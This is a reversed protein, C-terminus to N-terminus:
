EICIQLDNHEKLNDNIVLTNIHKFYQNFQAIYDGKIILNQSSNPTNNCNLQKIEILNINKLYNEIFQRSNALFLRNDNIYYVFELDDQSIYKLSLNAIEETQFEFNDTNKVIQTIYTYDPLQKTTEVPNNIALYEKIIQEIKGLRAGEPSIKAELDNNERLNVVLIYNKEQDVVIQAPQDFYDLIDNEFNFNYIGEFYEKNNEIKQYFAPDLQKLLNHIQKLKDKGQTFSFSLVFDVPLKELLLQSKASNLPDFDLSELVLKNEEKKLGLYLDNLNDTKLSALLLKFKIDKIKDLYSSLLDIDFYIKAPYNINLRKLNVVVEVKQALSPKEQFSVKKVQDIVKESNSVILINRELTKNILFEYALNDQKILNLYNELDKSKQKLNFILLYDFKLNGTEINPILAFATNYSVFNNLNEFSIEPLNYEKKFDNFISEVLENKFFENNLRFTSYLVADKPVYKILNDKKFYLQYYLFFAIVVLLIIVGLSQLGFKLLRKQWITM